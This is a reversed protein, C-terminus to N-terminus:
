TNSSINAVTIHTIHTYTYPPPPNAVTATVIVYFNSGLMNCIYMKKVKNEFDNAYGLTRTMSVLLM